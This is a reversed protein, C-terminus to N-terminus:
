NVQEEALLHILEVDIDEYFIEQNLEVLGRSSLFLLALFGGVHDEIPGLMQPFKLAEQQIQRELLREHMWAILEELDEHHALEEVEELTRVTVSQRRQTAQARVVQRELTEMEKLQSILDVLTLPRQVYAPVSPRRRISRELHIPLQVWSSTDLEEQQEVEQPADWPLTAQEALAEAKMRVLVSAYFIAQGSRGLDQIDGLSELFRDTLHVVDLDWPDIEGKRALDILLGIADKQM